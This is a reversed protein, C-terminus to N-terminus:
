FRYNMGITVATEDIFRGEINLKLKNSIINIDTGAFVGINKDARYKTEFKKSLFGESDTFNINLENKLTVDSYKMGAYPSFQGFTKNVYLAIQWEQLTTKTNYAPDTISPDLDMIVDKLDIGNIRYDGDVKYRMYQTDAMFRLGSSTEYIKAKAGIGWAFGYDGDFKERETPVDPSLYKQKYTLDSVGLKVYLDLNQHVGASGKLFFRNSRMKVDRISDGSFPYTEESTVDGATEKHSGSKVKMNRSFIGDYELGLSFKGLGGQTDATNGVSAAMAVSSLSITVFLVLMLIFTIRRM